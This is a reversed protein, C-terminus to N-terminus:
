MWVDTHDLCLEQFGVYCPYFFPNIKWVQTIWTTLKLWGGDAEMVSSLQSNKGGAEVEMIELAPNSFQLWAPTLGGRPVNSGGFSVGIAGKVLRWAVRSCQAVSHSFDLELWVCARLLSLCVVTPDPAWNLSFVRSLNIPFTPSISIGTWLWVELSYM